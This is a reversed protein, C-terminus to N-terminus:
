FDPGEKIGGRASISLLNMLNVIRSTSREDAILSEADVRDSVVAVTVRFGTSIETDAAEDSATLATRVSTSFRETSLIRGFPSSLWENGDRWVDHANVADVM